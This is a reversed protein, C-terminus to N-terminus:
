VASTNLVKSGSRSLARNVFMLVLAPGIVRIILFINLDGEALKPAIQSPPLDRYEPSNAVKLGCQYKM